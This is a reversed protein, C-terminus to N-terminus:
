EDATDPKMVLKQGSQWKKTPRFIVDLRPWHGGKAGHKTWLKQFTNTMMLLSDPKGPFITFAEPVHSGQGVFRGVPFFEELTERPPPLTPCWITPTHFRPKGMKQLSFQSILTSALFRSSRVKGGTSEIFADGDNGPSTLTIDNDDAWTLNVASNTGVNGDSAPLHRERLNFSVSGVAEKRPGGTILDFSEISQQPPDSNSDLKLWERSRTDVHHLNRRSFLAALPL